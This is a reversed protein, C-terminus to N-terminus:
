AKTKLEKEDLVKDKNLGKSSLSASSWAHNLSHNYMGM